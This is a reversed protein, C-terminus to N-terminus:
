LKVLHVAQSSMSVYGSMKSDFGTLGMFLKCIYNFNKDNYIVCPCMFFIEDSLSATGVTFMFKPYKRLVFNIGKVSYIYLFGAM